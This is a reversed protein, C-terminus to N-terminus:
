TCTRRVAAAVRRHVDVWVRNLQFKRRKHVGFRFLLTPPRREVYCFCVVCNACRACASVRYVIRPGNPKLIALMHVIINYAIASALQQRCRHQGRGVGAGLALRRRRCSMRLM